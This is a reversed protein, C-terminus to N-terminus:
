IDPLLPTTSFTASKGEFTYDDWLALVKPLSKFYKTNRFETADISYNRDKAPPQFDLRKTSTRQDAKLKGPL